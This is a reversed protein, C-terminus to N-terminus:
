LLIMTIEQFVSPRSPIDQHFCDRSHILSEDGGFMDNQNDEHNVSRVDESAVVNPGYSNGGENESFPEFINGSHPSPTDYRNPNPDSREEDNLNDPHDDLYDFNFFNLNNVDPVFPENHM